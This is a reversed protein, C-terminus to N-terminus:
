AAATPQGLDSFNNPFNTALSPISGGVSRNETLAGLLQLRNRGRANLAPDGQNESSKRM